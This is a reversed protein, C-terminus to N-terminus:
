EDDLLCFNTILNTPEEIETSKTTKKTVISNFSTFTDLNVTQDIFIGNKFHEKYFKKRGTSQNKYVSFNDFLDIIMPNLDIHKKRFVRGVIQEMSGNENKTTNKLHGIYKKPTILILTDLQSVSVGEKFAAFSALILDCAKSKNLEEIKMSGLFLGSTFTVTTDSDILQKLKVLHNRRESLVLIKRKEKICNKILEIILKNRKTMEILESIMSTFQITKKGTFRNTSFVEKYSGDESTIKLCKIIPPKGERETTSKYVVDGLHMKFVYECGDARNPTASLGITYKSCLKFLIKSFNESGINHCNHVIFGNKVYQNTIQSKNSRNCVIYNHNDQIEMDFVYNNKSTNKINKTILTIKSYGYDLFKNNWIYDGFVIPLNELIKKQKISHNCKWYVTKYKQLNYFRNSNCKECFNYQVYHIDTKNYNNYIKYVNGKILFEQKINEKKCFITYDTITNISMDQLYSIYQQPLLKYLLDKHIYKHILSILEKTGNANIYICYYSKKYKVYQCDINMSKLKLVIRQQSDEDFSDTSIKSSFAKKNISGDDMFWIALGKEDLDDLMWQPVSTKTKPLENFLYFTKTSFQCADKKSYGNNKINRIDNIGFMLAKWKCYDYQDKGHTISLRYRGNKLTQIHGDGLFSGILIQYQDNNLAPCVSNITSNDYNSIIFDNIKLNKAEVWIHEKNKLIFYKHNETSQIKMKSCNIEILTNNVKRFVNLIKKYEFQKTIENFTKVRPLQKNELKMKYLTGITINDHSTIICTNYPFCEDFVTAGIGKFLEDPYDIRSLSQLMAVTIDKDMIDVKKQGQLIGISANPLFKEIETKWQDLLSIKNVIIIAKSKLKSLINLCLFTKGAGAAAELIGGGKEICANYLADCPEIQRDFLKGNFEIEHDWMKGTYNDLVSEPYGFKKIGFMKPIYMKTKTEVYIPFSVPENKNYKDDTLPRARLEKKLELLEDQTFYEKKLVYGRKSLYSMCNM